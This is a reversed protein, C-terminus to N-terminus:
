MEKRIFATLGAALFVAFWIATLAVDAAEPRRWYFESVRTAANWDVGAVALRGYYGWPVCRQVWAPFFLSMLGAFGGAIGSILAAAQNAFCLSLGLQLAGIAMSVGWSMLSFLMLKGAPVTGAFGAAAGLLAFVAARVCMLGATILAYWALKAAYLHGPTTLTELLKLTVGAHEMECERSTLASLVVPLTVADILALQYLLMQWGAARDTEDMGHLLAAAIWLLEVGLWGACVPLLRRRRCKYFELRLLKM